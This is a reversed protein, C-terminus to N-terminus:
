RDTKPLTSPPETSATNLGKLQKAIQAALGIGKGSLKQILEQDYMAQYSKTTSDTFLGGEPTAERMSKLAMQMLISEFQTAAKDVAQNYEASGREARSNKKLTQLNQFNLSFDETNLTTNTPSVM